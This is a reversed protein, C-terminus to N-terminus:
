KPVERRIHAKSGKKLIDETNVEENKISTNVTKLKIDIEVLLLNNDCSIDAGRLTREM